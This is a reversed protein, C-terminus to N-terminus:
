NIRPGGYWSGGILDIFLLTEVELYVVGFRRWRLCSFPPKKSNTLRWFCDFECRVITCHGSDGSGAFKQYVNSLFYLHVRVFNLMEVDDFLDSLRGIQFVGKSSLIRQCDLATRSCRVYTNGCGLVSPAAQERSHIERIYEASFLLTRKALQRQRHLVWKM